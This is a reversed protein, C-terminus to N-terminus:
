ATKRNALLEAVQLLLSDEVVPKTFLPAHRMAEPIRDPHCGTCFVFPTGNALLYEAIPFSQQDYLEVDLIALHIENDKVLLLGSELDHAPGVIQYGASEFIMVMEMSLIVCDEVILVKHSPISSETM